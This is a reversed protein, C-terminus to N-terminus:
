TSINRKLNVIKKAIREELNPMTVYIIKVTHMYIYKSLRHKKPFKADILQLFKTAINTRLKTYFPPKALCNKKKETNKTIKGIDQKIIM